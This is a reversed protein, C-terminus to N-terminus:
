KSVKNESCLGVHHDLVAIMELRKIVWDEAGDHWKFKIQYVYYKDILLWITIVDGHVEKNIVMIDEKEIQGIMSRIL